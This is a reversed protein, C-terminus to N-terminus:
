LLIVLDAAPVQSNIEFLWSEALGDAQGFAVSTYFHRDALVLGGKALAPIIDKEMQHARDAAFLLQLCEPSTAWDHTLQGRILGGIINASPQKVALVKHGKQELWSALLNIQTSSGSGDLGEFAIFTGTQPRIM